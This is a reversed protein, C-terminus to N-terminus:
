TVPKSGFFRGDEKKVHGVGVIRGDLDRFAFELSGYPTTELPQVIQAGKGQVENYFSEVTEDPYDPVLYADFGAGYRERNPLVEGQNAQVLVIEVADRYLAAFKEAQEYHEVVRFGLVERYYEATKEVRPCVFVIACSSLRAATM